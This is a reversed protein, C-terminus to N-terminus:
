RQHKAAEKDPGPVLLYALALPVPAMLLIRHEWGLALADTLFEPVMCASCLKM